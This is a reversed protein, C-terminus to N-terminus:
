LAAKLAASYWDRATAEDIGALRADSLLEGVWYEAWSAAEFAAVDDVTCGDELDAADETGYRTLQEEVRDRAREREICGAPRDADEDWEADDHADQWAARSAVSEADDESYAPWEEDSLEHGLAEAAERYRVGYAESCAACGCMGAVSLDTGLDLRYITAM